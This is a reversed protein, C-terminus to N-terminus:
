IGLILTALLFGGLLYPVLPVKEGEGKLSGINFAKLAMWNSKLAKKTVEPDKIYNFLILAIEALIVTLLMPMAGRLITLMMLLKADGGGIFGEYLFFIAVILLLRIIYDEFGVFFLQAILGAGILALLIKGLEDMKGQKLDLYSCYGLVLLCIIFTIITM